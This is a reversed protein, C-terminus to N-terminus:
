PSVNEEALKSIVDDLLVQLEIVKEHTAGLKERVSPTIRHLIELAEAYMNAEIYLLVVHSEFREITYLDDDTSDLDSRISNFISKIFELGRAPRDTQFYSHGLVYTWTCLQVVNSGHLKIHQLIFEDAVEDANPHSYTM